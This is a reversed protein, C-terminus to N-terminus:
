RGANKVYRDFWELVTANWLRSNKPKLIWHGEDPYYLFRSPVGKRKLATYLAMGQAVPVRYDLEGHIVLTPTKFAAAFRDPSWKEYHERNEWPPGKFEWEPFWLEETSGYMSDLEYVGAHSMLAKFRHDHGLIWNVMYGGYSGGAAGLRTPDVYGEAVAADVGRMLDEFVAGGWDGSIQECFDQGFGTSGRPNPALVVYGASAFIAPNWRTSWADLWAGQPGGHIFVLTPWQKDEDFDPPFVVWGQVTRDGAGKWTVSVRTPLDRKELIEEHHRTLRKFSGGVRSFSYIEAPRVLSAHLAVFSKGDAAVSAGYANPGTWFQGAGYSRVDTEYWAHSGEFQTSVILGSGDPIWFLEDISNPIAGAVRRTTGTAVDLVMLRFIDSEYGDRMQSRYAVTTGDPSVCPSGDWGLNTATL